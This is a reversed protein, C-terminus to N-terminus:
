DTVSKRLGRRELSELTAVQETQQKSVGPLGKKARIRNLIGVGEELLSDLAFGVVEKGEMKRGSM